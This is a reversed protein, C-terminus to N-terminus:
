ATMLKEYNLIDEYTLWEPKKDDSFSNYLEKMKLIQSAVNKAWLHGEYRNGYGLFYECDMKLRDLLGYNFKEKRTPENDRGLIVIELGQYREIKSISVNPDGDFDGCVTHLDLKGRDCNIDKLLIGNQDRYVPTGLFDEGLYELVLKEM